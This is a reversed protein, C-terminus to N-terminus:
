SDLSPSCKKSFSVRHLSAAGFVMRRLRNCSHAWPGRRTQLASSLKNFNRSKELPINRSASIPRSLSVISFHHLAWIPGLQLFKVLNDLHHIRLPRLERGFNHLKVKHIKWPWSGALHPYPPAHPQRPQSGVTCRALPLSNWRYKLFMRMELDLPGTFIHHHTPTLM